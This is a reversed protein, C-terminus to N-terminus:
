HDIEKSFQCLNATDILITIWNYYLDLFAVVELRLILTSVMPFSAPNEPTALPLAHIAELWQQFDSFIFEVPGLWCCIRGPVWMAYLSMGPIDICRWRCLIDNSWEWIRTSLSWFYQKFSETFHMETNINDSCYVIACVPVCMTHSYVFSVEYM